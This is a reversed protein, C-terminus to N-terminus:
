KAQVYIPDNLLKQTVQRSQDIKEEISIQSLVRKMEKRFKKKAAFVDSTTTTSATAMAASATTTTVSPTSNSFILKTRVKSCGKKAVRM